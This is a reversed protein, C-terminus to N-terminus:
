RTINKTKLFQDFLEERYKKICLTEVFDSFDHDGIKPFNNDLWEWFEYVLMGRETPELSFYYIEEM